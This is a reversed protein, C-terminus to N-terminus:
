MSALVFFLSAVAYSILFCYASVYAFVYVCILVGPEQGFICRGGGLVSFEVAHFVMCRCGCLNFVVGGAHLYGVIRVKDLM